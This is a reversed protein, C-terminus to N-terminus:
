HRVKNDLEKCEPRHFTVHVSSYQNTNGYKTIKVREYDDSVGSCEACPDIAVDTAPKGSPNSTSNKAKLLKLCTVDLFTGMKFEGRVDKPVLEDLVANLETDTIGGNVDSGIHAQCLNGNSAFSATIRLDQTTRYVESIPNGYLREVTARNQIRAPTGLKSFSSQVVALFMILTSMGFSGIRRMRLLKRRLRHFKWM